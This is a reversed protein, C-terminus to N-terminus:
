GIQVRSRDRIWIELFKHIQWQPGIRFLTPDIRIELNQIKAGKQARSMKLEGLHNTQDPITM